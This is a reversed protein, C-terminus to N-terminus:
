PKNKKQNYTRIIDRVLQDKNEKDTEPLKRGEIDEKTLPLKFSNIDGKNDPLNIEIEDTSKGQRQSETNADFSFYSVDISKQEEDFTAIFATDDKYFRIDYLKPNTENKYEKWKPTFPDESPTPSTPSPTEYPNIDQNKNTSQDGLNPPTTTWNYEKDFYDTLKKAEDWSKMGPPLPLRKIREDSWNKFYDYKKLTAIKIKDEKEKKLKEQEKKDLQKVPKKTAVPKPTSYPAPTSNIVPTPQPTPTPKPTPSPLPKKQNYRKKNIDGNNVKPKEVPKPQVTKKNDHQVESIKVPKIMMVNTIRKQPKALLNAATIAAFVFFHIFLSLAFSVLVRNM